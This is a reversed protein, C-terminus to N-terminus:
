KKIEQLILNDLDSNGSHITRLLCDITFASIDKELSILQLSKVVGFFYAQRTLRSKNIWDTESGSEIAKETYKIIDRFEETTLCKNTM